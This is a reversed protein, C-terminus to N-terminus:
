LEDLMRRQEPTLGDDLEDRGIRTAPTEPSPTSSPQASAAADRRTIRSSLSGIVEGTKAELRDDIQDYIVWALLLYLPPLIYGWFWGSVGVSSLLVTLVWVILEVVFVLAYQVLKEGLRSRTGASKAAASRFGKLLLPKLALTALTLVVAAWLAHWGVSVSRMLLGILLLVAVNFVYLAAARVLLGKM